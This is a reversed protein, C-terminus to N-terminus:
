RSSPLFAALDAFDAQALGGLLTAHTAHDPDALVEVGLYFRGDTLAVPVLAALEPAESSPGRVADAQGATLLIVTAM